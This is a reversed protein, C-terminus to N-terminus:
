LEDAEHEDPEDHEAEEDDAAAEDDPEHEDHEAMGARLARILNGIAADRAEGRSGYTGNLAYVTMGGLEVRARYRGGGVKAVRVALEM